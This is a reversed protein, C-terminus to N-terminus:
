DHKLEELVAEKLKRRIRALKSEVAEQSTRLEEAIERVTRRAFYKQEVLRKEDPPLLAVHRELSGQLREEAQADSGPDAEISAQRRFRDLFAAYRRQKKRQDALASRALVTLWSWFAEEERFIKIHKTVRILAAQLAETATDENGSAVVLLYRWLRDFHNAYFARWAAEDGGAMRRTLSEIDPPQRATEDASGPCQEM